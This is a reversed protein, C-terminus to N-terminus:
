TILRNKIPDFSTSIKSGASGDPKLSTYEETVKAFWFTVTEITRSCNEAATLVSSTLMVDDFSLTFYDTSSNPDSRVSLRANRAHLGELCAKMIKPTAMDVYHSFAFNSVAPKVRGSQAINSQSEGPVNGATWSWGLVDIEKEHGRINCEGDIQDIKIFNKQIM